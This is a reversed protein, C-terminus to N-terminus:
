LRKHAAEMHQKGPPAFQVRCQCREEWVTKFDQFIAICHSGSSGEFVPVAALIAIPTGMGCIGAKGRAGDGM